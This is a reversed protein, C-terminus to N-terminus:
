SRTVFSKTHRPTFKSPSESRSPKALCGIGRMASYFNIAFIFRLFFIWRCCAALCVSYVTHLNHLTRLVPQLGDNKEAILGIMYGLTWIPCHMFLLNVSLLRNPIYTYIQQCSLRMMRMGHQFIRQDHNHSFWYTLLRALSIPSNSLESTFMTSRGCSSADVSVQWLTSWCTLADAPLPELM